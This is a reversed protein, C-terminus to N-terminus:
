GLSAIPQFFKALAGGKRKKHAANQRVGGGRRQGEDVEGAKFSSVVAM